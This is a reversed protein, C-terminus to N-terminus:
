AAHGAEEDRRASTASYFRELRQADRDNLTAEGREFRSLRSEAIGIARAVDFLRLGLELRRLREASVTRAKIPM